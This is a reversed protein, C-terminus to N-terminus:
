GAPLEAPYHRRWFACHHEAAADFTHIEGPEFRLTDSPGRYRPWPPLGAASPQGDYAFSRWYAVMAASLPQSAPEVDPGDIRSNYSIHPFFYPLEAAHVAGMEFGPDDMEPPAHRDAFEYEYVPVYRSAQAAMELYHCNSLPAGPMFDSEVTGLASPAAPFKDLPYEALVDPAAQGYLSALLKPYTDGNVAQGAAIAYAVYLRMEDRNGGNIIPMRLFQGDAFALAGQLPVNVSGVSPAFARPDAAALATQAELLDHISASRLCALAAAADNCHLRQALTEGVHGAEAVSNLRVGCALSQIIAKHFLGRSEKVATLQLCVSAAGASEGALTVNNPDGGFAAINRKVWRLAERQDALGWSGNHASAFAPHAMFGLAGLRYNVSVVVLDGARSLYDLPYINASGGVFAGGHIWVMVPRKHTPPHAAPVTVNLYLCDEDESADTVGFRAVQPCASRYHAADLVGHWPPSSEPPAFRRKGVPPRAFPIGKFELVGPGAAGHVLGRDTAVLLPDTAGAAAGVAAGAPACAAVLVALAIGRIDFM